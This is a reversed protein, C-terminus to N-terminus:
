KVNLIREIDKKFNEDEIKNVVEGAFADLLIRKADNKSIGRAQMFFLANQDLQGTTSGHSCKVDDAYIELQPRSHISSSKSLAINKNSQYADTQQAEKAVYVMGNFIGTANEDVIGKFLQNSTCNPKLHRVLTLNDFHENESPKYYGNLNTECNEGNVDVEYENRILKGNITFTNCTFISEKQQNAKLTHIRNINEAENFLSNITINSNENCFVETLENMFVTAVGFKSQNYCNIKLKSGKEAIILHRLQSLLNKDTETFFQYVIIPKDIVSDANIYIFMGNTAFAANQSTFINKETIKTKSLYKDALDAYNKKAEKLSSIIIGNKQPIKSKEPAYCGNIFVIAYENEGIEVDFGDFKPKPLQYDINLLNSINTYKWEENKRNPINKKHFDGTNNGAIKNKQYLDTIKEQYSQKQTM